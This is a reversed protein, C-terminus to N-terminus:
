IIVKYVDKGAPVLVRDRVLNAIVRRARDESCRYLRVVEEVTLTADKTYKASLFQIIDRELTQTVGFTESYRRQAEDESM